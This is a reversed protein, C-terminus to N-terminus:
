IMSRGQGRCSPRLHQHTRMRTKRRKLPPLLMMVIPRTEARPAKEIIIPHILMKWPVDSFLMHFRDIEIMGTALLLSMM